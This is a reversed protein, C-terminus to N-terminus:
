HVDAQAGGLRRQVAAVIGDFVPDGHLSILADEELIGERDFGCEVADGLLELAREKQGELAAICALRYLAWTNVYHRAGWAKGQIKLTRRYWQRARELNGARFELYGLDHLTRTLVPHESGSSRELDELSGELLRRAGGVDGTRRYVTALCRAFWERDSGPVQHADLIVFARELHKRAAELEGQRTLVEALGTIAWAAGVSDPGLTRQQLSLARDYYANATEFDGLRFHVQGLWFTVNGVQIHDRGFEQELIELARELRPLAAEHNLDGETDLIAQSLLTYALHMQYPKFVERELIEQSRDFDLRATSFDGKRM